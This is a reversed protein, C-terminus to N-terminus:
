LNTYALASRYTIEGPSGGCEDKNEYEVFQSWAPEIRKGEEDIVQVIKYYYGCCPWSPGHFIHAFCCADCCITSKREWVLSQPFEDDDDNLYMTWNTCWPCARTCELGCCCCSDYKTIIHIKAWQPDDLDDFEFRYTLDYKEAKQFNSSDKDAFAWVRDGSVRIKYSGDDELQGTSCGDGDLNPGGFSMLASSDGQHTLWWMGRLAVPLPAKGLLLPGKGTVDGAMVQQDPAIENM